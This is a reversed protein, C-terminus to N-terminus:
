QILSLSLFITFMLQGQQLTLPYHDVLGLLLISFLSYQIIFLGTKPKKRLESNVMGLERKIFIYGLFLIFCVGVIGVESLLLLYINHVPQLFYIQRSVLYDPLQVLFNGLGNGFAPSARAMSLAAANLQGRVVVSEDQFGFTNGIFFIILSAFLLVPFFLRKKNKFIVYVGGLAAVIWASRSFTLILAIIGLIITITKFISFKKKQNFIEFKLNFIIIPLTVALFGGLVNPHPFTAYARLKFVSYHISFLSYNFDVRAIGPTNVTFTREGFFWLPGGISHQLLFQIIAIVSSYFVGVSLPFIIRSLKPKTHVIYVGLAVLELIKIWAFFAVMRNAAFYINLPVFIILLIFVSYQITFPSFFLKKIKNLIGLESNVIRHIIETVWFSIILFILIDTVYLTPSLYDLRRGLVLAWGPWWHYGLQTPLFLLLLYFLYRHLKQITFQSNHIM